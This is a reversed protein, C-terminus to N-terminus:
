HTNNVGGKTIKVAFSLAKLSFWAKGKRLTDWDM